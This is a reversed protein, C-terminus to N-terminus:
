YNNERCKDRCICEVNILCLVLLFFQIISLSFFFAFIAVLISLATAGVTIALTLTSIIITGLIGVLLLAGYECLCYEEKRRSFFIAGLLVILFFATIGIAIFFLTPLATFITTSFVSFVIFALVISIIVSVINLGNKKYCGM